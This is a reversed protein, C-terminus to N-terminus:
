DPRELCTDCTKGGGSGKGAGSGKGGAGSGKGGGTQVVKLKLPADFSFTEDKTTSLALNQKKEEYGKLRLSLKVDKRPM